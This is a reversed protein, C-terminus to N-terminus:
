RRSTPTWKEESRNDTNNDIRNGEDLNNVELFVNWLRDFRIEYLEKIGLYKNMLADALKPDMNEWKPSDIFHETVMDIDDTVNWCEMIAQELDFRDKKMSNEM